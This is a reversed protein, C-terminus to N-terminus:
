RDQPYHDRGGGKGKIYRNDITDRRVCRGQYFGM